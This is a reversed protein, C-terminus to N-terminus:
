RKEIEIKRAEEARLAVLTGNVEIEMTQKALSCGRVILEEGRMVGMSNLRDKLATEANIKIIEAQEGKKLEVLLM